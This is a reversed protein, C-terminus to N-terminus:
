RLRRRMQARGRAARLAMRERPDHSPYTNSRLPTLPPTGISRRGSKQDHITQRVARLRSRRSAKSPCLPRRSKPDNRLCASRTAVPRTMKSQPQPHADRADHGSSELREHEGARQGQEAAFLSLEYRRKPAAPRGKEPHDPNAYGQRIM